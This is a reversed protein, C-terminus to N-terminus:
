SPVYKSTPLYPNSTPLSAIMQTQVKVIIQQTYMECEREREREELQLRRAKPELPCYDLRHRSGERDIKFHSPM